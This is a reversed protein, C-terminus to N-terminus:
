DFASVGTVWGDTEQQELEEKTWLCVEFSLICRESCCIRQTRALASDNKGESSKSTDTGDIGENEEAMSRCASLVADCVYGSSSHGNAIAQGLAVVYHGITVSHERFLVTMRSQSGRALEARLNWVDPKLNGFRQSKGRAKALNLSILEPARYLAYNM